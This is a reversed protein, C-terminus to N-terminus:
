IPNCGTACSLPASFRRAISTFFIAGSRPKSTLYGFSGRQELWTVLEAPQATPAIPVVFSNGTPAYLASIRAILEETAPEVVGVGLVRNFLSIDLESIILATASGLQECRLGLQSVTAESSAAVWEAYAHAETLEVLRTVEHPALTAM